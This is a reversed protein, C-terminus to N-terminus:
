LTNDIPRRHWNVPDSRGVFQRRAACKSNLNGASRDPQEVHITRDVGDVVNARVIARGQAFTHDGVPADDTRPMSGLEVESCTLREGRRRNFVDPGVLDDHGAVIDAQLNILNSRGLTRLQQRFHSREDQRPLLLHLSPAKRTPSSM